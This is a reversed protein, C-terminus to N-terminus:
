CLLKTELCYKLSLDVKRKEGRRDEAIKSAKQTVKAIREKKRDKKWQKAQEKGGERKEWGYEVARIADETGSMQRRM